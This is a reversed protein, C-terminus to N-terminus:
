IISKIGNIETGFCVHKGEKWMYLISCFAFGKSNHIKNNDNNNNNSTNINLFLLSKLSVM